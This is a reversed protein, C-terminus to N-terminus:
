PWVMPFLTEIEIVAEEPTPLTRTGANVKALEQVVYTWIEDRKAIFADAEAKWQANTSNAYSACSETSNYGKSKAKNLILLDIAAEILKTQLNVNEEYAAISNGEVWTVNDELLKPTNLGEPIPSANLIFIDDANIDINSDIRRSEEESVLVINKITRDQNLIVNMKFVLIVKICLFLM